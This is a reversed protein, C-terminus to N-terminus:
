AGGRANPADCVTQVPGGSADAIKLKGAAFFGISRSDPSWFPFKGGEAAPLEAV